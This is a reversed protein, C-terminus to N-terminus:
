TTQGPAVDHSPLAPPIVEGDAREPLGEAPPQAAHPEARDPSDGDGVSIREATTAASAELEVPSDLGVPSEPVAPVAANAVAPAAAETFAAQDDTEPLEEGLGMISPVVDRLRELPIAGSRVVRLSGGTADVITSPLPDTGELPRFGAELYVEVSEATRM